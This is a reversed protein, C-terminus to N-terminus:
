RKFSYNTKQFFLCSFFLDQVSPFFPLPRHPQCGDTGRKTRGQPADARRAQPGADTTSVSIPLVLGPRIGSQAARPRSLQDAKNRLRHKEFLGANSGSSQGWCVARHVPVTRGRSPRPSHIGEREKVAPGETRWGAPSLLVGPWGPDGARAHCIPPRAAGM